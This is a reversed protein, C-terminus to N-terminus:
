AKLLTAQTYRDVHAPIITDALVGNNLLDVESKCLSPALLPAFTLANAFAVAWAGDQVCKFFAKTKEGDDCLGGSEDLESRCRKNGMEYLKDAALRYLGIYQQGGTAKAADEILPMGYTQALEEYDAINPNLGKNCITTMADGVIKNADLNMIAQALDLCPFLAIASAASALTLVALPRM